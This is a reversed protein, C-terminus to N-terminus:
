RGSIRDNFLQNRIHQAAQEAAYPKAGMLTPGHPSHRFSEYQDESPGHVNYYGVTYGKAPKGNDGMAQESEYHVRMKKGGAAVEREDGNSMGSLMGSLTSM